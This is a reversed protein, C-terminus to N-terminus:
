QMWLLTGDMKAQIARGVDEAQDASVSDRLTSSFGMSFFVLSSKRDWIFDFPNVEELWEHMLLIM